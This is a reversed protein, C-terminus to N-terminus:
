PRALMEAYSGYFSPISHQEAFAHARDIEQSAVAAVEAGDMRAVVECFRRAIRGPGMVGFRFM